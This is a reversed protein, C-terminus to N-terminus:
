EIKLWKLVIKLNIINEKKKVVKYSNQVLFCGQAWWGTWVTNPGGM